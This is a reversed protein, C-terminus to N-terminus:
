PEGEPRNEAHRPLDDKADFWSIRSSIWIHFRPVAATPDDLTAISLDLEDPSADARMALQTGCTGCSWREGFSSSRYTRPEGTLAVDARSITGFVMVPAGSTRQCLRCHCYGTNRLEGELRYRIEGCACGGDLTMSAPYRASRM